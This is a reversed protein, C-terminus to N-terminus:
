ALAALNVVLRSSELALGYGALRTKIVRDFFSSNPM